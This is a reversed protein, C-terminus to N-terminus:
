REVVKAGCSPCYSAESMCLYNAGCEGCATRGEDDEVLRCTRESRYDGCREAVDGCALHSVVIGDRCETSVGVYRCVKRHICSERM